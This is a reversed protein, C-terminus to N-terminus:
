DATPRLEGPRNGRLAPAPVIRAGHLREAAKPEEVASPARRLRRLRVSCVVVGPGCGPTRRRELLFASPHDYDHPAIGGLGVDLGDRFANSRGATLREDRASGDVRDDPEDAVGIPERRDLPLLHGPDIVDDLDALRVLHDGRRQV